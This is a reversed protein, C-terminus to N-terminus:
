SILNVCRLIVLFTLIQSASIQLAAFLILKESRTLLGPIKPQDPICFNTIGSNTGTKVTRNIEM